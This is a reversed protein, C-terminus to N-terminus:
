RVERILKLAEAYEHCVTMGRARALYRMGELSRPHPFERVEDEYQSVANLKEELTDTIDVYVNPEFTKIGWETSSLVEYAYIKSVNSCTPRTAVLTAENTIRHDKNLDSDSNTYVIGPDIKNIIESLKSSMVGIPITDLKMDPFNLFFLNAIGLKEQIRRAQEYKRNLKSKNGPYQFTSSDTMYCVNVQDDARIHKLITGGIGIIEDDMHAAVVLIKNNNNNM